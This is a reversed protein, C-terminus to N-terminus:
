VPALEELEKALRKRAVHLRRKITGVPAAFQDSMEILSQGDVYFAMLTARDTRKLRRLGARVQSREERALVDALPTQRDICTAALSAPETATGPTKRVARNIAMRNTMSRLWGGFCEPQRLQSLKQMAKVFVEQTVEQAESHNNLRRYATAYVAREYREALQGFAARDGQQAAVVLSGTQQETAEEEANM